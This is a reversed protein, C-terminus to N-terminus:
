KQLFVKIQPVSKTTTNIPALVKTQQSTIGTREKVIKNVAEDIQTQQQKTNFKYPDPRKTNVNNNNNNNDKKNEAFLDLQDMLQESSEKDLNPLKILKRFLVLNASPLTEVVSISVFGEKGITPESTVQLSRSSSNEVNKELLIAEKQKQSLYKNVNDDSLLEYIQGSPNYLFLKVPHSQYVSIDQKMINVVPNFNTGIGFENGINDHTEM